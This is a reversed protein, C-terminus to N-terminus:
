KGPPPETLAQWVAEDRDYIDERFQLKGEGDVWATWYLLHVPLPEPLPVTQEKGSDITKQIAERTWRSDGKLVYEALDLPQQLRICGSSFDRRTKAFLDRSPTDHLYVEFKNPFMFKIRGLANQPGPEQRLYYPFNKVTLSKWNINEPDLPNLGKGYVKFKNQVLFQPNAKVKPLIDETALKYPVGWWPNIVLHTMRDSFVPTKRYPKGVVVRMELVTQSNERVKLNFDAINVLLHRKGLDQPLWRWRELNTAIQQVRQAAPFNLTEVTRAGIVGDAELGNQAQFQLVAALLSSDYYLPTKPPLSDKLFEQRFLRRRVAPLRNDQQGPRISIGSQIVAGSGSEAIRRYHQLAKQLEQYGNQPPDLKALEAAIRGSNLGDQLVAAMDLQRRNALWLSHLKEPDVRGALLHSGYVLFADTLLLDLGAIQVATAQGQRIQASLEKLRNLHYVAPTLGHRESRSVAKLLSDAQPLLRGGEFWALQYGRREYFVPLTQSAFLRENQVTILPLNGIMEISNRLINSPTEEPPRANVQLASCIFLLVIIYYFKESKFIGNRVCKVVM